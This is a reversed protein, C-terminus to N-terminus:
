MDQGPPHHCLYYYVFKGSQGRLNICETTQLHFLLGHINCLSKEYIICARLEFLIQCCAGCLWINFIRVADQTLLAPFAPFEWVKRSATQHYKAVSIWYELEWAHGRFVCIFTYRSIRVFINTANNKRSIGWLGTKLLSSLGLAPRCSFM